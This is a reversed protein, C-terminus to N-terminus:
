KLGLLLLIAERTSADARMFAENLETDNYTREDGEGSIPTNENEDLGLLWSESCEFFNCIKEIIDKGPRSDIGAEYKKKWISVNGRNFMAQTAAGSPTLGKKTCLAVYREYFM